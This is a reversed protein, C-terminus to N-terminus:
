WRCPRSKAVGISGGLYDALRSTTQEMKLGFREAAEVSEAVLCLLRLIELAMAEEMLRRIMLHTGSPLRDDDGTVIRYDGDPASPLEAESLRPGLSMALTCFAEDAVQRLAPKSMEGLLYPRDTLHNRRDLATLAFVVDTIAKFSLQYIM